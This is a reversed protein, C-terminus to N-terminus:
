KSGPTATIEMAADLLSDGIHVSVPGQPLSTLLRDALAGAAEKMDAGGKVLAVDLLANIPDIAFRRKAIREQVAWWLVNGQPDQLKLSCSYVYANYVGAHQTSAQEVAGSLFADAQVIQNLQAFSLLGIQGAHSVGVKNLGKDILHEDVLTYGKTQLMEIIRMRFHHQIDGTVTLNEMPLVAIVFQSKKKINKLFSPEVGQTANTQAALLQSPTFVCFISIAVSLSLFVVSIFIKNLM